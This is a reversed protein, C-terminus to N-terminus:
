RYGIQPPYPQPQQPPPPPYPYHVTYYPQWALRAQELAQVRLKLGPEGLNLHQQGVEHTLRADAQVFCRETHEYRKRLELLEKEAKTLKVDRIEKVALEAKIIHSKQDKLKEYLDDKAGKKWLRAELKDVRPKLRKIGEIDGNRLRGELIEVRLMVDETTDEEGLREQFGGIQGRVTDIVGDLRIFDDKLSKHDNKQRVKGEDVLRLYKNVATNLEAQARFLTSVDNQVSRYTSAQETKTAELISVRAELRRVM